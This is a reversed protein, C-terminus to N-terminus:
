ATTPARHHRREITRDLVTGLRHRRRADRAAALDLLRRAGPQHRVHTLRLHTLWDGSRFSRGLAHAVVNGVAHATPHVDARDSHSHADTWPHVVTSAHSRGHRRADGVTHTITGHNGHTNAHHEGGRHVHGFTEGVTDANTSTHGPDLQNRRIYTDGLGNGHARRGSVPGSFASTGMAADTVTATLNAYPPAYPLTVTFKGDGAVTGTALPLRGEDANDNYVEVDCGRCGSGSVLRTAADYVVIVPPEIDRHAGPGIRIGDGGNGNSSHNLLRNRLTTADLVWTGHSGNGEIRNGDFRAGTTGSKIKVGEHDNGLSAAPGSDGIHNNNVLTTAGAGQLLVGIGNAAIWNSHGERLGGVPQRGRWWARLRRRSTAWDTEGTPDPGIKNGLIKNGDTGLRRNRARGANGSVINSAIRAVVWPTTM